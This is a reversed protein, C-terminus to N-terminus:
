WDPRSCLERLFDAATRRLIEARNTNTQKAYVCAYM